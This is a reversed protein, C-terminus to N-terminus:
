PREKGAIKKAYLKEADALSMRMQFYRWTKTVGGHHSGSYNTCESWVGYTAKGPDQMLAVRRGAQNAGLKLAKAM